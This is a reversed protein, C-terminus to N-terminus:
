FLIKINIPATNKEIDKIGRRIIFNILDQSFISRCLDISNKAIIKRVDFEAIKKLAEVYEEVTDAYLLHKEDKFPYGAIGRESTITPIGRCLPEFIKQQMGAGFLSPILAIDMNKVFEDMNNVYGHYIIKDSFFQKMNDPMKAGTINFVFKGPMQNEIKSAIKKIIFELAAMNHSVNYTSGAFFVNLKEKPLIEPGKGIYKHLGRLPLNAINKAGLYKYIKEEKPTISFLFDSRCVTLIESICKFLFKFINFFSYGDEELFHVPEFNISRTIIPIHNKKVIKYLPWLYTYDFYVYDPKFSSMKEQFINKIEPDSYEFAAGDIFLPNKMRLFLRKIFSEDGRDARYIVPFIPVGIEKGIRVSEDAKDQNQVKTIVVVDFGDRLFWLIGESRDDDCAGKPPFPFRPTVIIIKKNKINM